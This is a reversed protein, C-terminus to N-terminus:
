PFLEAHAKVERGEKRDLASLLDVGISSLDLRYNNNGMATPIILSRAKCRTLTDKYEEGLEEKAVAHHTPGRKEILRLLQIDSPKIIKLLMDVTDFSMADKLRVFAQKNLDKRM